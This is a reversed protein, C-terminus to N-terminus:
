PMTEPIQGDIAEARYTGTHDYVLVTYTIGEPVNQFDYIGTIPDSWLDRKQRHDNESILFCRRSAAVTSVTIFGRVRGNGGMREYLTHSLGFSTVTAM